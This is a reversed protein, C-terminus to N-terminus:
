ITLLDVENEYLGTISQNILKIENCNSIIKSTLTKGTNKSFGILELNAGQNILQSLQLIQLLVYIQELISLKDFKEKGKILNEGVPNPRLKYICNLHKECLLDYLQRNKSKSITGKKEIYEDTFEAGIAKTIEKIYMMWEQRLVMQVANCVILRNGSRGTLYMYFGNVKILSYMKIKEIRVNPNEYGYSEVFYQELKEKTDLQHKLYLPVAEITRIRKKKQTHEVLCFYAGTMKRFGGYKLTDSLREDSTKVGVYGVGSAKEAVKAGYITQDALAGHVEFNRRTVLPTNKKMMSKVMTISEDNKTQWAVEDNRVVPYNFIKDMHYPNKEPAKKYERIFNYPNKTFKVHYVNGVVINLYADQAHHFDNVNRCKLLKYKQRFASVNPAKVYVIDAQPFTKKFLDTIAKTGQRTEVLQRNIFSVREDETFEFTRTLREYKEATIFGGSKLENWFVRCKKQIGDALPYGDSKHANIEKKVLVLNNDISDDKVFHRPYIHDIDYLNDNFLDDLDIREGSYMCRGKQTYYLYLKKSRFDAEDRKNIQNYLEREEEKCNKYLALFKNKRSETRKKEANPDRAMEVFVRAPAEGMVETIEKLVLITQWTMRRVPASIYLEDLDEYVIESLTKDIVKAREEINQKYTFNDSEILEMLNYNDSWMKQIVTSEEGTSKDIGEVKLLEKSLRGWDKFKYGAAQAIQKDSLVDGYNDQIKKKVFKKTDGYVTSWFIIQEAIKEQEYTLTDVGFLRCFKCYNARKNTFGDDIGSIEPTDQPEVEGHTQLFEILKSKTVKKEKKLLYEYIDQKLKVSIREGNIRLNNLENLVMFKEYLLSNKPLVEEGGIYTCHKVMRSIFRQASEETDIKQEFNWPYVKGAEKRVSWVNKSYKMDGNVIPSIPGIYYPIQFEFMKVIRESVTLNSEDKEKLFPM